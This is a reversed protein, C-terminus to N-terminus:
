TEHNWRQNQSLKLSNDKVEQPKARSLLCQKVCNSAQLDRGHNDIVHCFLYKACFQDGLCLMASRFVPMVNTKNLWSFGKCHSSVYVCVCVCVCVYVCVSRWFHGYEFNKQDTNKRMRVSYPLLWPVCAFVKPVFFAKLMFYFANKMIKLPRGATLLERLGSLPGKPSAHLAM